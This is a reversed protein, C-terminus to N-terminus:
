LNVVTLERSVSLSRFDSVILPIGARYAFEEDDKPIPMGSSYVIDLSRLLALVKPNQAAHRLHVSLFAAFQHLRNLHCRKIMDVLEQTPFNITTPQITCSGHQISGVLMFTQGIHCM